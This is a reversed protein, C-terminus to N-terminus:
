RGNEREELLAQLVDASRGRSARDVWEPYDGSGRCLFGQAELDALRAWLARESSSDSTRSAPRLEAIAKGHRRILVSHGAEVLRLIESFHDRVEAINASKM